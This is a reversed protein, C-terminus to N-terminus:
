TIWICLSCLLIISIWKVLCLHSYSRPNPGIVSINDAACHFFECRDADICKADSLSSDEILIFYFCCISVGFLSFLCCDYSVLFFDWALAFSWFILLSFRFEVICFRTGNHFNLSNCRFHSQVDVLNWQQFVGAFRLTCNLPLLSLLIELKGLLTRFHFEM